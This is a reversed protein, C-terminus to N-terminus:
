LVIGLTVNSRRRARNTCCFAPHCKLSALLRAIQEGLRRLFFPIFFIFRLTNPHTQPQRPSSCVAPSCRLLVTKFPSPLPRGHEGAMAACDECESEERRKHQMAKCRLSGGEREGGREREGGWGSQSSISVRTTAPHEPYM